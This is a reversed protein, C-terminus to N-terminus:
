NTREKETPLIRHRSTPGIPAKRATGIAMTVAPLAEVNNGMALVGWGATFREPAALTEVLYSM